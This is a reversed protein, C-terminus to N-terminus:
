KEAPQQVKPNKKIEPLTPTVVQPKNKPETEQIFNELISLYGDLAAGNPGLEKRLDQLQDRADIADRRIDGIGLKGSMLGSLTDNFYSQAGPAQQLPILEQLQGLSGVDVGSKRLQEVVDEPTATPDNPSKAANAGRQNPVAPIAPTAPAVPAPAPRDGLSVSAVKDRHMTLVGLIPSELKLEDGSLSVVKGSIVDGNVLVITDAWLNGQLMLWAATLLSSKLFASRM